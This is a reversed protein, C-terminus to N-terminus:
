AESNMRRKEVEEKMQPLKDELDFGRFIFYMLLNIFIPFINAFGYISYRMSTTAVQLSADYAGLVLFISLIVSGIGSGVKSGFGIAGSSIAVLKKDYKYENYDVAMGLLVGYLCMLPMMMVSSVIGTAVYM